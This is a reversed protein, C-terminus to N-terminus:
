GALPLSFSFVSGKGPESQIHLVSNLKEIFERTLVLGLGSGKENNTGPNTNRKNSDFLKEMVKETIGVGTDNVKIVSQDGENTTSIQIHGNSTFKNANGLLNRLIFRLMYEDGEVMFDEEVGNQLTNGKLQAAVELSKFERLVVKHLNVARLHPTKRNIQAQGWEVLNTLMDLTGDLQKSLLGMVDDMQKPSLLQLNNMDIIGKLSALPNRVDHAMYSIIQSQTHSLENLHQKHENARAVQEEVQRNRLRLELLKIVQRSLVQLATHQDVNLKRPVKDLVCLTGVKYGSNVVLPYGTYFRIHPDQVVWQSLAFREDQLTDTVELFDTGANVQDCFSTAKSSQEANIGLRAKFWYRDVDELAILAIPVECIQSALQVIDDFDQEACSDLINLSYIHQLRQEEIDHDPFSNKM